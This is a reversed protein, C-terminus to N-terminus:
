GEAPPVAVWRGGDHMSTIMAQAVMTATLGDRASALPPPAAAAVAAIWEQLQVRYAEAFRPRWDAAYGYGHSRSSDMVMVVPETLALTGEEGVVDCRVDYGYRANLFVEVTALVGDATRLLLVQPDRLAPDVRGSQRGAHWSVDTIPSDLLWPVCDFEHIASGTISSESTAGPGASVGRSYGHVLVAPGIRGDRLAAKLQLYGPDFRRMFGVSVLPTGDGVAGREAAVVAASQAVTPALPKECLVPKGARIAALTLEAHTSDHSAIVVADVAPDDILAFGDAPVTAGTADAVARARGADVDTVANLV